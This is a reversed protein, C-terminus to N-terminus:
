YCGQIVLCKGSPDYPREKVCVECRGCGNSDFCMAGPFATASTSSLVILILAVLAAALM